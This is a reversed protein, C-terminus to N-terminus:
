PVLMRRVTFSLRERGAEHNGRYTVKLGVDDEIVELGHFAPMPTAPDRLECAVGGTQRAGPSPTDPTNLM